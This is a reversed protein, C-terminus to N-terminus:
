TRGELFAECTTCHTGDFSFFASEATEPVEEPTTGDDSTATGDDDIAERVADAESAELDGLSRQVELCGRCCFVGDVDPDAVPTAPTQLDCLRCTADADLTPDDDTPGGDETSM